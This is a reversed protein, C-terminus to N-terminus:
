HNLHLYKPPCEAIQLDSFSQFFGASDNVGEIYVSGIQTEYFEMVLQM